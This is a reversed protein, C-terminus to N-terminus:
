VPPAGPTSLTPNPISSLGESAGTVVRLFPRAWHGVGGLGAAGARVPLCLGPHHAWLGRSIPACTVMSMFSPNNLLGAIDFSGVGGTQPSSFLGPSHGCSWSVPGRFIGCPAPQLGLVCVAWVGEWSLPWAKRSTNAM